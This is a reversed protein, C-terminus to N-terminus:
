LSGAAARALSVGWRGLAVPGFSTMVDRYVRPRRTGIKALFRVFESSTMEDRLLAGYTRDGMAHLTAFAADLLGNLEDKKAPDLPPTAMIRALVGTGVHLAQDRQPAAPQGLAAREIKDATHELSRVMSGFGCFTLPSHRAAADGVLVVRRGPAAPAPTLRSWGPIYGFTPRVLKFAGRKYSPLREFFRAYLALLAGPGVDERRAYYFLYVTTHGTAGPFAEWMHQRGEEIGETTALIEGVTPDIRDRGDGEELGVVVGGVTPCVLDASAYPSSSGRSDVLVRTTLEGRAGDGSSAVDGVHSAAGGGSSAVGAGNSAIAVRVATEGEAHGRVTYGDLITVGAAEAKSRVLGLLRGADFACDLAGTVPYSGGEHWVCVGHRYRAVILAEVEGPTLLRTRALADLEATSGNWERHVAGAKAREVVAVRLGRAALLPSLLLSLGGGALVADFDIAALADPARIAPAPETCSGVQSEGQSTRVADLHFLRECLEDGGVERVLAVAGDRNM